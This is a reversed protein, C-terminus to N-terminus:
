GIEQILQYQNKIGELYYIVILNKPLAIDVKPLLCGATGINNTYVCDHLAVV